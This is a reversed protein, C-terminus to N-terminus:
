LQYWAGAWSCGYSSFLLTGAFFFLSSFQEAYTLMLLYKGDEQGNHQDLHARHPSAYGEFIVQLPSGHGDGFAQGPTTELRYFHTHSLWYLPCFIIEFHSVPRESMVIWRYWSPWTSLGLAMFIKCQSVQFFPNNREEDVLLPFFLFVNIMSFSVCTM